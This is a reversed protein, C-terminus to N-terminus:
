DARKDLKAFAQDIEAHTLKGDVMYARALREVVTFVGTIGALFVAKVLEIGILAGAGVISLGQAAFVALIRFLVKKISDSRSIM